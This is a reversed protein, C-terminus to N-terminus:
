LAPVIAPLQMVKSLTTLNLWRSRVTADHLGLYLRSYRDHRALRAPFLWAVLTATSHQTINTLFNDAEIHHVTTHPLSKTVHFPHRVDHCILLDQFGNVANSTSSCRTLSWTQATTTESDPKAANESRDAGASPGSRRAIGSRIATSTRNDAALTTNQYRRGALELCM